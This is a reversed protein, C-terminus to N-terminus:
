DIKVRIGKSEVSQCANFFDHAVEADSVDTEYLAFDFETFVLALTLYLECYALSRVSTTLLCSLQLSGLVSLLVLKMGLCQRSGKGFAVIYKRLQASDKQLWRQPDFTKPDRFVDENNHLLVSTMGVPTGRPIVWTKYQLDVDPSIRQLRHSVGYAM